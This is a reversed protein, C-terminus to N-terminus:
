RAHRPSFNLFSVFPSFTASRMQKILSQGSIKRDSIVVKWLIIMHHREALVWGLTGRSGADQLNVLIGAHFIEWM